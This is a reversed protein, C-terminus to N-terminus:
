GGGLSESMKLLLNFDGAVTYKQDMFMQPLGQVLCNLMIETQSVGGTRASSNIALIKM